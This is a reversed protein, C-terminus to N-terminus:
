LRAFLHRRLIQSWVDNKSWGTSAGGKRGTTVAVQTELCQQIDALPCFSGENLWVTTKRFHSQPSHKRKLAQLLLWCHSRNKKKETMASWLHVSPTHSCSPVPSTTIRLFHQPLFASHTFPSTPVTPLSHCPKYAFNDAPPIQEAIFWLDSKDTKAAIFASYERTWKPTIIFLIEFYM